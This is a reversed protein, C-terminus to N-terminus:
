ELELPKTPPPLDPAQQEFELRKLSQRARALVLGCMLFLMGFASLRLPLLMPSSITDTSSFNQHLTNWWKVSFYVIPVNAFAIIAGVAMVVSARESQRMVNRLILLGAFSLVMIATTTLRPDWTWWTNWTPKAWISGQLTLMVSFLVGVEVAAILSADWHRKGTWLSAIALVFALLFTVLATWATPVHVYLIRGVDGMMAEKPAVFLGIIHGGLMLALGFGLSLLQDKSKTTKLGSLRYTLVVLLVLMIIGAIQKESM